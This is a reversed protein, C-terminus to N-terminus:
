IVIIIVLLTISMTMKSILHPNNSTKYTCAKRSLHLFCAIFHRFANNSHVCTLDTKKYEKRWNIYKLMEKTVFLPYSEATFNKKKSRATFNNSSLFSKEDIKHFLSDM